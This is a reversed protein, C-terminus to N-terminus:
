AASAKVDERLRESLASMERHLRARNVLYLWGPVSVDVARYSFLIGQLDDAMRAITDSDTETLARQWAEDVCRRFESKRERADLQDVLERLAWLLAPLLPALINTVLRDVPVQKDGCIYIVVVASVILATTFIRVYPTRLASDWAANLRLAALHSRAPGFSELGRDYWDRLRSALADNQLRRDGVSAIEEYFPCPALQARRVSSFVYADFLESCQAAKRRNKGIAYYIYSSDFGALFVGTVAAQYQLGPQLIAYVSLAVSVMVFLLELKRLRGVIGFYHDAAARYRLAELDNQRGIGLAEASM